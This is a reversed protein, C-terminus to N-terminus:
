INYGGRRDGPKRGLTVSSSISFWHRQNIDKSVSPDLLVLGTKPGLHSFCM